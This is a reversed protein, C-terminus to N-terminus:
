SFLCDLFINTAECPPIILMGSEECWCFVIGYIILCLSMCCIEHVCNTSLEKVKWACGLVDWLLINDGSNQKWLWNILNKKRQWYIVLVQFM